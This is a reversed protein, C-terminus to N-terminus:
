ERHVTTSDGELVVSGVAEPERGQDHVLTAGQVEVVATCVDVVPQGATRQREIAARQVHESAIGRRRRFQRADQGEPRAGRQDIQCRADCTAGNSQGEGAERLAGAARGDNGARIEAGIRLDEEGRRGGQTGGGSADQGADSDAVIEGGVVRGVADDGEIAVDRRRVDISGGCRGRDLDVGGGGKPREIKSPGDTSHVDDVVVHHDTGVSGQQAGLAPGDGTTSHQHVAVVGADGGRHEGKATRLADEADITRRQVHAAADGARRADGLGSASAHREGGELGVGALGSQVQAIQGQGAALVGQQHSRGGGNGTHGIKLDIATDKIEVAVILSDAREEVAVGQGEDRTLDGVGAAGGDGQGRRHIRVRDKTGLDGAIQPQGAGAVVSERQRICVSVCTRRDNATATQSQLIQPRERRTGDRQIETCQRQVVGVEIRHGGQIGHSEGGGGRHGHLSGGPGDSGTTHHVIRGRQVSECNERASGVRDGGPQGVTGRVGDGDAVKDQRDVIARGKVEGTVDALHGRTTGLDEEILDVADRRDVIGEEAHVEDDVTTFVANVVGLLADNAEAAGGDTAVGHWGVRRREGAAVVQGGVNRAGTGVDDDRRVGGDAGQTEGACRGSIDGERRAGLLQIEREAAQQTVVVVIGGADAGCSKAADQDGAARGVGAGGVEDHPPILVGDGDVRHDGVVAKSVEGAQHLGTGGCQCEGCM